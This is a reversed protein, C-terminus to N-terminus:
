QLGVKAREINQEAISWYFKMLEEDRSLWSENIRKAKEVARKSLEQKSVHALDWSSPPKIESNYDCELAKQILREIELQVAPKPHKVHLRSCITKATLKQFNFGEDNTKVNSTTSSEGDKASEAIVSDELNLGILVLAREIEHGYTAVALNPSFRTGTGACAFCSESDGRRGAGSCDECTIRLSKEFSAPDRILGRVKADYGQKKGLYLLGAGCAKMAAIRLDDNPANTGSSFIASIAETNPNTINAALLAQRLAIDSVPAPNRHDKPGTGGTTQVSTESESTTGRNAPTIDPTAVQSHHMSQNEASQLPERVIPTYSEKASASVPASAPADAPPPAPAPGPSQYGTASLWGGHAASNAVASVPVSPNASYLRGDPEASNAAASVPAAPNAGYFHYGGGHRPKAVQTEGDGFPPHDIPKGTAKPYKPPLGRVGHIFGLECSNYNAHSLRDYYGLQKLGAKLDDVSPQNNALRGIPALLEGYCYGWGYWKPAPAAPTPNTGYLRPAASMGGYQSTPAHAVPAPTPAAPTPTHKAKQAWIRADRVETPSLNSELRTLEAQANEFGGARARLYWGYAKQNDREVGLGSAYCGALIYQANENGQDAAKRYWKIATEANQGIGTGNMYCDGLRIQAIESSPNRGCLWVRAGGCFWIDAAKHYWKVAEEENKSVGAGDMYCDGLSIQAWCNGKDAAKRFLKAAEYDNRDVLVGKLYETGLRCQGAADGKEADKHFSNFVVDGYPRVDLGQLYCDVLLVEGLKDAQAVAEGFWRVAEANNVGVGTGKRYCEGLSTQAHANGQTAAKLFWSFAEVDNRGVGWGRLYREGVSWQAVALGQEAAKREWMFTEAPSLDVGAAEGISGLNYQAEADGQEAKQRYSEAKRRNIGEM